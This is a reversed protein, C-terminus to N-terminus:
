KYPHAVVGQLALNDLTDRLGANSQSLTICGQANLGVLGLCWVIIRSLQHTYVAMLAVCYEDQASESLPPHILLGQVSLELELLLLLLELV